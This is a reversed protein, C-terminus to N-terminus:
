GELPCKMGDCKLFNFVMTIRYDRKKTIFLVYHCPSSAFLLVQEVLKVLSHPNVYYVVATCSTFHLNNM